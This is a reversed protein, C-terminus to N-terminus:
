AGRLNRQSPPPTIGAGLPAGPEGPKGDARFCSDVGPPCVLCAGTTDGHHMHANLVAPTGVTLTEASNGHGATFHCITAEFTGTEDGNTAFASPVALSFSASQSGLTFTLLIAFLGIMLSSKKM